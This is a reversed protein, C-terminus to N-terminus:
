SARLPAFIVLSKSQQSPQQLGEFNVFQSYDFSESNLPTEANSETFPFEMAISPSFGGLTLRKYTPRSRLATFIPFVTISLISRILSHHPSRPLVSPPFRLAAFLSIVPVPRPNLDFIKPGHGITFVPFLVAISLWVMRRIASHRPRSVPLVSQLKRPVQGKSVGDYVESPM